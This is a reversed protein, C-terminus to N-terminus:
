KNLISVLFSIGKQVFSNSSRDVGYPNFISSALKNFLREPESIRKNIRTEYESLELREM